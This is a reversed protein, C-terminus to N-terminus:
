CILGVGKLKYLGHKNAINPICRVVYARQSGLRLEVM